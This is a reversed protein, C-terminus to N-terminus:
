INVPIKETEKKYTLKYLYDLPYRVKCKDYIKKWELLKLIDLFELHELSVAYVASFGDNRAQSKEFSHELFSKWRYESIPKKRVIETCVIESYIWPSYTTQQYIDKYKKISSNTNLLITIESKDIIGSQIQNGYTVWRNRVVMCRNIDDGYCFSYFVKRAM